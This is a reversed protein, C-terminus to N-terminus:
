DSPKSSKQDPMALETEAALIRGFEVMIGRRCPLCAGDCAARRPTSGARCGRTSPAAGTCVRAKDRECQGVAAADHSAARGRGAVVLIDRPVDAPWAEGLARALAFLVPRTALSVVLHPDRVVNRCADIVLAKSAQLAEVEDLLLVREGGNAILRAAPTNLVASATEVEAALAPIGARRAAEEARVLAARAAKARLRRM